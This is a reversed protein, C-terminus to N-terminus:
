LQSLARIAIYYRIKLFILKKSQLIEKKTELSAIKKRIKESNNSTDEKDLSLMMQLKLSQDKNTAEKSLYMM